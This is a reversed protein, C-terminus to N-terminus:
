NENLMVEINFQGCWKTFEEKIRIFESKDDETVSYTGEMIRGNIDNLLNGVSVMITQLELYENFQYLSEYEVATLLSSLDFVALDETYNIDYDLASYASMFCELIGSDSLIAYYDYKSTGEDVLYVESDYIGWDENIDFADIGATETLTGIVKVPKNSYTISMETKPYVHMYTGSLDMDYPIPTLYCFSGDSPSYPSIYGYMTVTKGEYKECSENFRLVNDWFNFGVTLGFVIIIASLAFLITGVWCINTRKNNQRSDNM